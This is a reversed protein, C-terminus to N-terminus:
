VASSRVRVPVIMEFDVEVAVSRQLLEIGIVVRLRGPTKLLTGEIGRLPGREVRVRDGAQLYPWPQLPLQSAAVVRIEEIEREEIPAPM